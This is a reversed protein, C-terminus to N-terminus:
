SRRRLRMQYLLAAAGISGLAVGCRKLFAQAPIM